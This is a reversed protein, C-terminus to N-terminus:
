SNKKLWQALQSYEEIICLCIVRQLSIAWPSLPQELDQDVFVFTYTLIFRGASAVPNERTLRNQGPQIKGHLTCPLM